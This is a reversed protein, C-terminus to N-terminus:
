KNQEAIRDRNYKLLARTMDYLPEKGSRFVVPLLGEKAFSKILGPLEAMCQEDKQDEGTLWISVVNSEEARSIEVAKVEKM